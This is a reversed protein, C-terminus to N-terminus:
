DDGQEETQDINTLRKAQELLNQRDLVKNVDSPKIKLSYESYEALAEKVLKVVHGVARRGSALVMDMAMFM